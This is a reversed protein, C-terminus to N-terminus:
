QAVAYELITVASWLALSGNIGGMEDDEVADGAMEKWVGIWHELEALIRTPSAVREKKRTAITAKIVSEAVTM